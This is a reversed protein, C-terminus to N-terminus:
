AVEKLLHRSIILRMIENTGELIQHVRLDRVFREIEYEHIYGYGGHLQLAQNCIDFCKDTAFLKAMACHQSLDPHDTDLSRAARYVTLRSAQLHTEMEALRFQLAQFETLPKGFQHRDAMYRITRDLCTQAGGLSCSAINVRGGDLAKMAIKFGSGERGILNEKPIACNNFIVSTTPQSKWGMKKELNGFTLGPTDKEVVFCSIGKSGHEGTRAMVLYIDSVGGGSIFVKEGTLFYEHGKVEAKTKLNGADSGNSPETLCYSALKEMSALSPLWKKKQSEDGFTDIMWSAMNHISLYAASSVCGHALQEFILSADLRSMGCGGYEPSIYINSFGLAAAKRFTEVPFFSEADWQNAYPILEKQTFDKALDMVAFQDSSLAFDM